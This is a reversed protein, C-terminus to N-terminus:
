AEKGKFNEINQEKDDIDHYGVRNRRSYVYHQILTMIDFSMPGFAGLLYPVQLWLYSLDDGRLLVSGIYSANSAIMLIVFGLSLDKVQKQQFNKIVQPIRSGIYIFSGVWGFLTGALERGTYPESWDFSMGSALMANLLLGATSTTSDSMLSQDNLGSGNINNGYKQNRKCRYCYKYYLFQLFLASDFVVDIAGTLIQTFIGHDIIVGIMSLCSGLAILGFLFPSIGGVDKSVATTILQPIPIVFRILDAFLGLAFSAIEKPTSICDNFIDKIWHIYKDSACSMKFSEKNQISVVEFITNDLTSHKLHRSQFIM